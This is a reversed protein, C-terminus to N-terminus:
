RSSQNGMGFCRERLKGSDTNIVSIVRAESTCVDGVKLPRVGSVMKFGNSLHVLKLHNDDIDAPFIAKM